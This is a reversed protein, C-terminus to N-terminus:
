AILHTLKTGCSVINQRLSHPLLNTREILAEAVREIPIENEKRVRFQKFLTQPM